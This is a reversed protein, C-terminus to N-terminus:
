NLVRVFPLKIVNRSLKKQVVIFHIKLIIVWITSNILTEIKHINKFWNAPIPIILTAFNM